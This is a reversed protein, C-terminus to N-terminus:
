VNFKKFNVKIKENRKRKEKKAQVKSTDNVWRVAKNSTKRKIQTKNIKRLTILASTKDTM